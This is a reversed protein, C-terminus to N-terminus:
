QVKKFKHQYNFTNNYSTQSFESICYSCYKNKSDIAVGCRMCNKIKVPPNMSKVMKNWNTKAKTQSSASSAETKCNPCFYYYPGKSDNFGVSDVQPEAGCKCKM